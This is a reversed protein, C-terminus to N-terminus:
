FDAQGLSSLKEAGLSRLSIGYRARTEAEGEPLYKVQYGAAIYDAVEQPQQILYLYPRDNLNRERVLALLRPRMSGCVVVVKEGQAAVVRTIAEARKSDRSRTARDAGLQGGPSIGSRGIDIVSSFCLALCFARFPRAPAVLGLAMIAFPVTPILYGSELPLRAYAVYYIFIAGVLLLLVSRVRPAVIAASPLSRTVFLGVLIWAAVGVTGWVGTSGRLLVTLLQPYAAPESFSLFGLGHRLWVPMFCLGGLALAAASLGLAPRARSGRDSTSIVYAVLPLLM